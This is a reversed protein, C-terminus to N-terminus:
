TKNGRIAQVVSVWIRLGDRSRLDTAREPHPMLGFVNRNQNCIGAINFASGNPNSPPNSAPDEKGEANVYTLLIQNGAKLEAFQEESAVYRGDGHAIPLKLIEGTKLERTWPSESSVVKTFVDRCVFKLSENRALAGPLLGMECLMQFGNCTGLVFGGKAAYERVQDMIPSLAAIAGCRLYDGYSFGGPLVVLDYASLDPTDKHWLCDVSFECIRKLVDVCDDDCNSGPFTIVAAKM